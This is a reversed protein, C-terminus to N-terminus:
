RIKEDLLRRLVVDFSSQLESKHEESRMPKILVKTEPPCGTGTSGRGRIVWAVARGPAQSMRCANALPQVAMVPTSATLLPTFANRSGTTEVARRVRVRIM